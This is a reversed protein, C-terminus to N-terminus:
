SIRLKNLHFKYIQDLNQICERILFTDKISTVLTPSIDEFLMLHGFIRLYYIRYNFVLQFYSQYNTTIFTISLILSSIKNEWPIM